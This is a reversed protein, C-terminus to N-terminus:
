AVIESRTEKLLVLAIDGRQRLDEAVGVDGRGGSIKMWAESLHLRHHIPAVLAPKYDKLMRYRPVGSKMRLGPTSSSVEHTVVGDDCSRRRCLCRSRALANCDAAISLPGVRHGAYALDPDAPPTRSLPLERTPGSDVRSTATRAPGEASVALGDDDLAAVGAEFQVDRGTVQRDARGTDAHIHECALDRNSLVVRRNLQVHAKAGHRGVGHETLM